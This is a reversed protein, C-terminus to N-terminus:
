GLGHGPVPTHPAGALRGLRHAGARAVVAVAVEAAGAERLAAAVVHLTAGTTLVDDVVLLRAGGLRACARYTGASLMRRSATPLGSQDRRPGAARLAPVLPRHVAAAVPAALLAAHDFGRQRLRSRDSPVWTVADVPAALTRCVLAALLEGLGPWVSWVGAAKGAVIAAAVPGAYSFTAYTAVVPAHEDWCRHPSRGDGCRACRRPLRHRSAQQACPPCWPPGGRAGCAVCRAPVLVDALRRLM